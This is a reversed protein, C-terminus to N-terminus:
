PDGQLRHHLRRRRQGPAGAAEDQGALPARTLAHRRAPPAEGRSRLPLPRPLRHAHSPGGLRLPAAAGATGSCYVNLLRHTDWRGAPAGEAARHRRAARSGHRLVRTLVRLARLVRPAGAARTCLFCHWGSPRKRAPARPPAGKISAMEAKEWLKAGDKGVSVSLVEVTLRGAM